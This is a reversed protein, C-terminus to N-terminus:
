QVWGTEPAVTIPALGAVTITLPAPQVSKEATVSRGQPDFVVSDGALTVGAPACLANGVPPDCGRESSPLDIPSGCAVSASGAEPLATDIGLAVRAAAGVGPTTTVCVHRRSAVAVRRAHQVTVKVADHFGREDFSRDFARPVAFVALVGVAIMVTILEVLTFGAHCGLAASRLRLSVRRSLALM